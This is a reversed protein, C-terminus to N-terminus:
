RQFPLTDKRQFLKRILTFVRYYIFQKGSPDVVGAVIMVPKPDPGAANSLLGQQFGGSCNVVREYGM